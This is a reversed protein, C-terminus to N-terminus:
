TLKSMVREASPIRRLWAVLAYAAFLLALADSALRYRASPWSLLFILNYFIFVLYLPLLVRWNKRSLWLGAIMFPLALGFSLIRTLNSLLPASPDPWFKFQEMAKSGALALTRLPDSLMIRLADQTLLRDMSAENGSLWESPIAVIASELKPQWYAGQSPHNAAWLAYGANSNLLLFRGYVCVNRITFPLIVVALAIVAALLARWPLQRRREWAVLLLFLPALPLITQRLLTTLGMVVGLALACRWSPHERFRLFLDVVALMGVIYFAETMLAASYYIFYPYFAAWAGAVLGVRRDFLRSGLRYTLWVLLGGTLVAQSVRAIFPHPGAVSYIVTLYLPYAFSWHATPTDAPTFPYWGRDFSFGFGGMIREALTQYSIQDQIGPLAEIRDNMVAAVILRLLIAVVMIVWFTLPLRSNLRDSRSTDPLLDTACEYTIDRSM